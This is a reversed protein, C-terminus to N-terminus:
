FDIKDKRSSDNEAAEFTIKISVNICAKTVFINYTQYQVFNQLQVTNIFIYLKGNYSLVRASQEPVLWLSCLTHFPYLAGAVASASSVVAPQSISLDCVSSQKICVGPLLIPAL